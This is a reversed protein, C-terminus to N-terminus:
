NVHLKTQISDDKIFLYFPIELWILVWGCDISCLIDVMAWHILLHPKTHTHTHTYITTTSENKARAIANSYRDLTTKCTEWDFIISKCKLICCNYRHIRSLSRCENLAILEYFFYELLVISFQNFLAM